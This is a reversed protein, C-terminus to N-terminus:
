ATLELAPPHVDDAKLRLLFGAVDIVKGARLEAELRPGVTRATALDVVVVKRAKVPQIGSREHQDSRVKGVARFRVAATTRRQAVRIALM